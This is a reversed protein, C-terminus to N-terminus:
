SSYPLVRVEESHKGSVLTQGFDVNPLHSSYYWRAESFEWWIGIWVLLTITVASKWHSAM